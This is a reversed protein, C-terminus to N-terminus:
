MRYGLYRKLWEPYQLFVQLRIDMFENLHRLGAYRDYNGYRNKKGDAIFTPQPIRPIITSSMIEKKVNEALTIANKTYVAETTLESISEPEGTNISTTASTTSIPSGLLVTESTTEM